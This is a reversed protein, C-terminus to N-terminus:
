GKLLDVPAERFQGYFDDAGGRLMHGPEGCFEPYGYSQKAATDAKKIYGATPRRYKKDMEKSESAFLM